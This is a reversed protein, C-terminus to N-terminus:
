KQVVNVCSMAQKAENIIKTPRTAFFQLLDQTNSYYGPCWAARIFRSTAFDYGDMTTTWQGGVSSLSSSRDVIENNQMKVIERDLGSRNGAPFFDPFGYGKRWDPCALFYLFVMLKRPIWRNKHEGTIEEELIAEPISTARASNGVEPHFQRRDTIIPWDCCPFSVLFPGPFCIPFVM